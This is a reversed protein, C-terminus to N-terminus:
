PKKDNFSSSEEPLELLKKLMSNETRLRQNDAKLSYIFNLYQQLLQAGDSHNHPSQEARDLYDKGNSILQDLNM